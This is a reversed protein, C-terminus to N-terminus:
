GVSSSSAGIAGFIRSVSLGNLAISMARSSAGDPKSVIIAREPLGSKLAASASASYM